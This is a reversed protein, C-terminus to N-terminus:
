KNRGSGKFWKLYNVPFIRQGHLVTHADGKFCLVQYSLQKLSRLRPQATVPSLLYLLMREKCSDVKLTEPSLWSRFFGGNTEQSISGVKVRNVRILQACIVRLCAGFFCIRFRLISFVRLMCEKFECKSSEKIITTM